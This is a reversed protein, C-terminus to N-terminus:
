EGGGHSQAVFRAIFAAVTVAGSLGAFIGPPIPTAVAYAAMVSLAVEAGSLIGAVILLRTSWARKLVWNWDDILSFRKKLKEM